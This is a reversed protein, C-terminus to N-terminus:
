MWGPEFTPTSTSTLQSVSKTAFVASNWASTFSMAICTAAADGAAACYTVL